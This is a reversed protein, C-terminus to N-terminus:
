TIIFIFDYELFLVTEFTSSPSYNCPTRLTSFLVFLSFSFFALSLSLSLSLSVFFCTKQAFSLFAFSVFLFLFFYKKYQKISKLCFATKSLFFIYHYHFSLHLLLTHYPSCFVFFIFILSSSFFSLILLSTSSLLCFFYERKHLIIVNQRGKLVWKQPQCANTVSKILPAPSIKIKM